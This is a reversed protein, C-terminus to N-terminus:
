IFNVKDSNFHVSFVFLHGVSNSLIDGIRTDLVKTALFCCALSLKLEVFVFSTLLYM